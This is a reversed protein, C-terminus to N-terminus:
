GIQSTPDPDPYFDAPDAVSATNFLHKFYEMYRPTIFVLAQHSFNILGTNSL